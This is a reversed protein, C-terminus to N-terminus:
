RPLPFKSELYILNQAINRLLIFNTKYLDLSTLYIRSSDLKIELYTCELYITHGREKERARERGHLLLLHILHCICIRDLIRSQCLLATIFTYPLRSAQKHRFDTAM